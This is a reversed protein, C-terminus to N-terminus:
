LQFGAMYLSENVNTVGEAPPPLRYTHLWNEGKTLKLVFYIVTSYSMATNLIQYVASTLLYM